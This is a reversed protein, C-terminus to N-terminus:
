APSTPSGTVVRGADRVISVVEDIIDPRAALVARSGIRYDSGDLDAVRAGAERAVVVGAAMDWPNNSLTISADLRGEAVWALDIAASGLMRVRMATAAMRRAVEVRVKNKTQADQGVAFDGLAVIADGLGGGQRVQLDQGNLQAGRGKVASYRAHLFPLGIVGLVPQEGRVLALSVACLPMGRVFNVTGDVPDLTWIDNHAPGPSAGNEEGLFGVNPTREALFARLRDEVALDVESVLDREGKPTLTGPRSTRILDCAIDVAQLAIPLYDEPKLRGAEGPGVDV